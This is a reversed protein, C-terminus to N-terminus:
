ASQEQQEQRRAKVADRQLGDFVHDATSVKTLVQAGLIKMEIAGFDGGRLEASLDGTPAIVDGPAVDAIADPVEITLEGTAGLARGFARVRTVPRGAEDVVRQDTKKNDKYVHGPTVRLVIVPVEEQMPIVPAVM